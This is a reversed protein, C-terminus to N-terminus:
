IKRLNEPTDIAYGRGPINAILNPKNGANIKKRLNRIHAEVTNSFMNSDATWVHEMLLARSLIVGINKMLYELLSFEKNTMHIPKSGRKVIHKETDLTLDAVSLTTSGILIPRRNLAKIRANLENMFFPKTLYDDAGREFAAMKTEQDDNVSLFIIPTSRGSDRVEKCVMLGDKKPLSYDLVIADYEYSRGLFSGNAGDNAVEVTNNGSVLGNRVLEATDKDDEVVLIKMSLLIPFDRIIHM